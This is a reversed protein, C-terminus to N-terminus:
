NQTVLTEIISLAEDLRAFDLGFAPIGAIWAVVRDVRDPDPPQAWAGHTLVLRVSQAHGLRHLVARGAMPDFRPAVIWRVRKASRDGVAAPTPPMYRVRQGDPRLHVPRGALDPLYPQLLDWAGAKITLSYPIGRVTRGDEALLVGDDSLCRWGRGMLAATIVTKGSGPPAPLLLSGTPGEVAGAHLALLHPARRVAIRAMYLKVLPALEAASRCREALRAGRVLRFGGNQGEVSLAVDARFPESHELHHLTPHILDHLEGDGYSLRFRTGLMAYRRRVALPGPPGIRPQRQPQGSPRAPPVPPTGDAEDVLLGLSRWTAIIETSGASADPGDGGAAAVPDPRAIDPAGALRCWVLTAATNLFYVKRRGTDVLMGEEGLIRLHVGEAPRLGGRRPTDGAVSSSKAAPPM